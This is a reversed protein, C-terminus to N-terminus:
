RDLKSEYHICDFDIPYEVKDGEDTLWETPEKCDPCRQIDFWDLDDNILKNPANCCETRM